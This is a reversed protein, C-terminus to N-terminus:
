LGALVINRSAEHAFSATTPIPTTSVGTDMSLIIRECQSKRNNAAHDFRVFHKLKFFHGRPPTPRQLYRGSFAAEDLGRRRDAL